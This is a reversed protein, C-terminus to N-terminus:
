NPRSRRAREMDRLLSAFDATNIPKPFHGAVNLGHTQAVGCVHQRLCTPHGSVIIVQGAFKVRGLITEVADLGNVDPMSLDLSIVDPAGDILLLELARSDTLVETRYGCKM